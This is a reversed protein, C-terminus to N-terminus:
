FKNCGKSLKEIITKTKKLPLSDELKLHSLKKYTLSKTFKKIEPNLNYYRITNPLEFTLSPLKDIVIPFEALKNNDQIEKIKSYSTRFTKNNIYFPAIIILENEKQLKFNLPSLNSISLYFKQLMNNRVKTKFLSSFFSTKETLDGETLCKDGSYDNNFMLKYHLCLHDFYAYNEPNMFSTQLFHRFNQTQTFDSYFNKYKNNKTSLFCTLNFFTENKIVSSYKKYESFINLM